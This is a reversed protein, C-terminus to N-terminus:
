PRKRARIMRVAVDLGEAKVILEKGRQGVFKEPILGRRIWRNITKRSNVHKFGLYAAGERTDMWPTSNM